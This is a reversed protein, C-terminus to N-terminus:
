FITGNAWHWKKDSSNLLEITHYDVQLCDKVCKKLEINSDLFKKVIDQDKKVGLNKGGETVAHTPFHMQCFLGLDEIAVYIDLKVEFLYSTQLMSHRVTGRGRFLPNALGFIYSHIKDRTGITKLISDKSVGLGVYKLDYSIADIFRSYPDRLATWLVRTDHIDGFYEVSYEDSTYTKEIADRISSSGSKHINLYRQNPTGWIEINQM